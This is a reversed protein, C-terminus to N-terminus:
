KLNEPKFDPSLEVYHSNVIADAGNEDVAAMINTAGKNASNIVPILPLGFDLSLRIFYNRTVDKNAAMGPMGVILNGTDVGQWGIAGVLAQNVAGVLAYYTNAHMQDQEANIAESGSWNGATGTSITNEQYMESIGYRYLEQPTILIANSSNLGEYYVTLFVQEIDGGTASGQAQVDLTDQSILQQPFNGLLNYAQAGVPRVYIGDVNDHLRPSRTRIIGATGQFLAGIQLLFARKNTARVTLSQGSAVTLATFTTSPATVIGSITELSGTRM